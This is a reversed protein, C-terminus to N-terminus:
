LWSVQPPPGGLEVGSVSGVMAKRLVLVAESRRASRQALRSAERPM